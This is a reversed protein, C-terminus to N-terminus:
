HSCPRITSPIKSPENHKCFIQHNCIFDNASSIAERQCINKSFWVFNQCLVLLGQRFKVRLWDRGTVCGEEGSGVIIPVGVDGWEKFVLIYGFLAFETQKVLIPDFNSSKRTRGRRASNPFFQWHVLFILSATTSPPAPMNKWFREFFVFNENFM